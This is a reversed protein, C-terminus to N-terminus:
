EEHNPSSRDKCAVHRRALDCRAGRRHLPGGRGGERADDRAHQQPQRGLARPVRLWGRALPGGPTRARGTGGRHRRRRPALFSVVGGGPAVTATASHSPRQRGDEPDSANPTALPSPAGQRWRRLSAAAEACSATTHRPRSTPRAAVIRSVAQRRSTREESMVSSDSVHWGHRPDHTTRREDNTTQREDNTAERAKADFHFGSPIDTSPEVGAAAWAAAMEDDVEDPYWAWFIAPYRERLQADWGCAGGM